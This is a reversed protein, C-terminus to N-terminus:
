LVKLNIALNLPLHMSKEYVGQECAHIAGGGGGGDVDGVLITRTTRKASKHQCMVIM